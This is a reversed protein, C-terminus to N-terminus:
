GDIKRVRAPLLIIGLAVIILAMGIYRLSSFKEGFIWASSLIGTCPSLLAFPAVASAPYRQLLDGWIAYVFTAAAGLYIAGGLGVWSATSIATLFSPPDGVMASVALAPLPPVLSAWVILSFLSVDKPARKVIVNGIAWSLAAALALGLALPRLDGGVTFGILTLGALAFALGACQRASPLEGLFAAALLVTFFAQMQQTVSALGPPLGAEFAFFLLLFQGAFWTLGIVVLMWLGIRPRPVILAPLAAIMFRLATLQPATFSELGFKTAVFALGWVVSTLAALIM